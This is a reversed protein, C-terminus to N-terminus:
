QWFSPCFHREESRVSYCYTREWALSLCSGRQRVQCIRRQRRKNRSQNGNLKRIAGNLFRVWVEETESSHPTCMQPLCLGPPSEPLSLNSGNSFGVERNKRMRLISVSDPRYKSGQGANSCNQIGSLTDAVNQEVRHSRACM